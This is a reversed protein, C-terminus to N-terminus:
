TDEDNGANSANVSFMKGIVNIKNVPLKKKIKNIDESSSEKNKIKTTSVNGNEEKEIDEILMEISRNQLEVTSM